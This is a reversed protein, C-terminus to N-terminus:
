KKILYEEEIYAFDEENKAADADMYSIQLVQVFTSDYGPINASFRIEDSPALLCEYTEMEAMGNEDTYQIGQIMNSPYLTHMNYKVFRFDFIQNPVVENTMSDRVTVYIKIDTRYWVPPPGVNTNICAIFLTLFVATYFFYTHKKRM